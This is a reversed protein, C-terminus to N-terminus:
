GSKKWGEYEVPQELQLAKTCAMGEAQFVGERFRQM